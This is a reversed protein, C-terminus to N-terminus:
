STSVKVKSDKRCVRENTNPKSPGGVATSVQRGTSRSPRAPCLIHTLAHKRYAVAADEDSRALPPPTAARGNRCDGILPPRQRQQCPRTVCGRRGRGARGRDAGRSKERHRDGDLRWIPRPRRRCLLTPVLHRAAASARSSIWSATITSVAAMAGGAPSRWRSSWTM